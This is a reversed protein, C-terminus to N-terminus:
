SRVLKQYFGQLRSSSEKIDYGAKGIAERMDSRNSRDAYLLVRDAWAQAGDELPLFVTLETVSVEKSVTDSLICPLGSAQAEVVALPLGEWLSPFLFVDMAQMFGPVDASLGTFIVHDELGAERVKEEIVPRLEGDGVLLLVAKGCKKHIERFVEILFQHNKVPKFSGTHGVVFRDELQLANRVTNRKAEYFRFVDADIANNLVMFNRKQCAKKGYLWVGSSDSCAFLYDAVYRIPYQLINKVLASFGKGSSTSHSHAITVLGYKKAITLYIAATSRVHGHIIKYERHEKFFTHWVKYFRLVNKLGFKPVAYIRGGLARVEDSFSGQEESSVIFDFQVKNRDIHRYLNMVMTEAGGIDLRSLVHLVRIQETM